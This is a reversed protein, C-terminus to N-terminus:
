LPRGNWPSAGRAGHPAPGGAAPGKSMRSGVVAVFVNGEPDLRVGLPFSPFTAVTVLAGGPAFKVVKSAFPLSLYTTGRHDTAISEPVSPPSTTLVRTVSVTGLATTSLIALLVGALVVGFRFPRSMESEGGTSGFM